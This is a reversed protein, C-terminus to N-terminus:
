RLAVATAPKMLMAEAATLLAVAAAQGLVLAVGLANPSVIGLVLLGVSAVVWAVNGAVIVGALVARVAPSGAAAVLLAAIPLLLLGVSVLLDEPLATMRAIPESLGTFILGLAACSVADATLVLSFLRARSTSM